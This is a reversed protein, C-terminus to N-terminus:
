AGHSWMLEFVFSMFSDYSRTEILLKNRAGLQTCIAELDEWTKPPGGPWDPLDELRSKRYIMLGINIHQPLAPLFRGVACNLPKKNLLEKLIDFRGTGLADLALENTLDIEELISGEPSSQ